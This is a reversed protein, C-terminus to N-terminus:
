KKTSKSSSTTKKATTTSNDEDNAPVSLNRQSMLELLDEDSLNTLVEEQAKAVIDDVTRPIEEGNEYAEKVLKAQRPDLTWAPVSIAENGRKLYTISNRILKDAMHQPLTIYDGIEPPHIVDDGVVYIPPAKRTERTEYIPLGHPTEGIQVRESEMRFIETGIYYVRVDKARTLPSEPVVSFNSPEALKRSTM